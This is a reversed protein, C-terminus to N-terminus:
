WSALRRSCRSPGISPGRPSTMSRPCNRPRPCRHGPGSHARSSRSACILHSSKTRISQGDDPRTLHPCSRQWPTPRGRIRPRSGRPTSGCRRAAALDMVSGAPSPVCTWAPQSSNRRQTTGCPTCAPAACVPAFPSGGTGSPSRARSCRQAATPVTPSSSRPPRCCCVSNQAPRKASPATTASYARRPRAPTESQEQHVERPYIGRDTLLQPLRQRRPPDPRRRGLPTRVDRRAPLRHDDDALPVPGLGSRWADNLLAAVEEPSPPDPDSREFAPPAAMAAVNVGLYNWRVARDLAARLVFHTQRVTSASLPRCVHDRPPKACLRKCRRMRSYLRELLEADLKAAMHSGLTPEIYLRVLGEYRQRTTDGARRGGAM